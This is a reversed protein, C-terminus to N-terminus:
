CSGRGGSILSGARWGVVALVYLSIIDDWALMAMLIGYFTIFLHRDLESVARFFHPFHSSELSQVSAGSFLIWAAIKIQHRMEETRLSGENDESGCGSSSRPHKSNEKLYARSVAPTGVWLQYKSVPSAGPQMKACLLKAFRNRSHQRGVRCPKTQM